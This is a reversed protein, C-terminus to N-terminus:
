QNMTMGPRIADGNMKLFHFDVSLPRLIQSRNLSFTGIFIPSVTSFTVIARKERVSDVSTAAPTSMM